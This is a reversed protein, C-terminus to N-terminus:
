FKNFRRCVHSHHLSSIHWQIPHTTRYDPLLKRGNRHCPKRCIWPLVTLHEVRFIGAPTVDWVVISLQWWWLFCLNPQLVTVQLILNSASFRVNTSLIAGCYLQYLSQATFQVTRSELGSLLLPNQYEGFREWRGQSGGLRRNLPYRIKERSTFRGSRSTVREGRDPV